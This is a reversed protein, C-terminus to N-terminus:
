MVIKPQMMKRKEQWDQHHHVQKKKIAIINIIVIMIMIMQANETLTLSDDSDDDNHVSLKHRKQTRGMTEAVSNMKELALSSKSNRLKFFANLFSLAAEHILAHEITMLLYALTLAIRYEKLLREFIKLVITFSGNPYTQSIGHYCVLSLQVLLDYSLQYSALKEFVELSWLTINHRNAQLVCSIAIDAWLKCIKPHYAKWIEIRGNVFNNNNHITDAGIHPAVTDVFLGGFLGNFISLVAAFLAAFVRHVTTFCVGTPPACLYGYIYYIGGFLEIILLLLLGCLYINIKGNDYGIGTAIPSAPADYEFGFVEKGSEFYNDIIINININPAPTPRAGPTVFSFFFVFVSLEHVFAFCFVILAFCANGGLWVM